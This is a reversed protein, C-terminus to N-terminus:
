GRWSKMQEIEPAQAAKIEQALPGSDRDSSSNALAIDSM